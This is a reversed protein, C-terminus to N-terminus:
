GTERQAQVNDKHRDGGIGLSERIGLVNVIRYGKLDRLEGAIVYKREGDVVIEVIRRELVENVGEDFVKKGEELIVVRTSVSLLGEDHSAVFVIIGRSSADEILEKTIEVTEADLENTPEDLLFLVPNKVMQSVALSLRQKMGKSLERVKKSGYIIGFRKKLSTIGDRYGYLFAFFELNEDATLEPVLPPDEPVYAIRGRIKSPYRVVDIDNLTYKGSSPKFTTALINLLTSKGAANQGLLLVVEGGRVELDIDKLVWEKKFRKGIGELRLEM